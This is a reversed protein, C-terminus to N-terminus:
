SLLFNPSALGTLGPAVHARNFAREARKVIQDLVGWGGEPATVFVHIAALARQAHGNKAWGLCQVGSKSHHVVPATVSTIVDAYEPDRYL